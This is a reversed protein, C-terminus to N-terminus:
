SGGRDPCGAGLREAVLDAIALCATLGPSEIGFLNVLGAVGHIEPGDIRFDAAPEGPGSLKPRIGCYDPVLARGDIGPWWRRISTRFAAERDPSVRFDPDGEGLWEVDPGFRANGALDLTLHVGLGGEEPLPYILRGFPARRPEPAYYNGKALFRPPVAAEPTGLARAAEWAGLGAANIVARCSLRLPADGGIEAELGGAGSGGGTLPAHLAVVAGHDEAEGQLSLMLAHGDVVGTFPSLLAGACVLEPELARAEAGDLRELAVGNAAAAARVAELRPVEAAEAAVILKGARRHPIGREACYGYLAERGAVCLRAKLSGKPYYIGAHIVESSRSSTGTGIAGAAEAVVVERGARALRRAVALGVVGAGTVLVDVREM